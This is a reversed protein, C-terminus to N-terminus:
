KSNLGLEKLLNRQKSSMCTTLQKYGLGHRKFIESRIKKTFSRPGKEKDNIKALAILKDYGLNILEEKVKTPEEALLRGYISEDLDAFAKDIIPKILRIEDMTLVIEGTTLTMTITKKM